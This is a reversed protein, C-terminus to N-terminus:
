LPITLRIVKAESSRAWETNGDGGRKLDELLDKLHEIRVSL